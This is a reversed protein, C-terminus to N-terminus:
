ENDKVVRYITKGDKQWRAVANNPAIPYMQAEQMGSIWIIGSQNIAPSYTQAPQIQQPQQIQPINQMMQPQQMAAQYGAPYGIYPNGYYNYAAM